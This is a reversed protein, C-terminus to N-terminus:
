RPSMLREARPKKPDKSVQCDEPYLYIPTLKKVDDTKEDLFRKLALSALFRAQPYWFKEATFHPKIGKTMGIEERFLKIGDGVFIIDGKIQKLIEALSVLIYNMRCQLRGQSKQYLCAYLFGRRADCITCIAAEKVPVGMALVDLSSIGVVPKNTALALGKVAALGVRLSTFSGPGLGVAFGDLESFAMHSKELIKQISPMLSSSLVRPLRINRYGLIDEGQSIALSFRQTSTDLSLLKM